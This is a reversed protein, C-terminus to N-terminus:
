ITEVLKLVRRAVRRDVIALSDLFLVSDLGVVNGQPIFMEVYIVHPPVYGLSISIKLRAKDVVDQLQEYLMDEVHQPLREVNIVPRSLRVIILKRGRGVVRGSVIRGSDRDFVASLVVNDCSTFTPPIPVRLYKFIYVRDM